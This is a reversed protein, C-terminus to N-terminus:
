AAAVYGLISGSNVAYSNRRVADSANGEITYVKGNEVKEVIGIHDVKGNGADYDFIVMDGPLPARSGRDYYRGVKKGWAMTYAVYDQGQGNEGIPAGAQRFVWSVFDNCWPEPTNPNEGRGTVAKRYEVIRDGRDEGGEEKTGVERAAIAVIRSRLDASQAPNGQGPNKVPPAPDGGKKPPKKGSGTGQSPDGQGVQSAGSHACSCGGAPAPVTAAPQGGGQTGAQQRLAAQQQAALAQQAAIAQQLAQVQAAMQQAQATLAAVQQAQPNEVQVITGPAYQQQVPAQQQVPVYQAPQQVPVQQVPSPAYQPAQGGGTVQQAAPAGYQIVVQVQVPQSAYQQQPLPGGAAVAVQQAPQYQPQVAPAAVVPLQVPSQVPLQIPSQTPQAIGMTSIPTVGM